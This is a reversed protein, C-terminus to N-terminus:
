KLSSQIENFVKWGNTVEKRDNAPALVSDRSMGEYENVNRLNGLQWLMLMGIEEKYTVNETGL